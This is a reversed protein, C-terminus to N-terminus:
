GRLRRTDCTVVEDSLGFAQVGTPGVSADGAPPTAGRVGGVTLHMRKNALGREQPTHLWSESARTGQRSRPASTERSRQPWRRPCSDTVSAGPVHRSEPPQTPDSGPGLMMAVIPGLRVTEGRTAALWCTRTKSLPVGKGNARDRGEDRSRQAEGAPPAAGRVGGVTLHLRKNALWREQHNMSGLNRGQGHGAAEQACLQERGRAVFGYPRCSARPLMPDSAPELTMSGGRGLTRRGGRAEMPWGCRAGPTLRTM